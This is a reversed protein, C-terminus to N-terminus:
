KSKPFMQFIAVLWRAFTAQDVTCTQRDMKGLHRALMMMFFLFWRPTSLLPLTSCLVSNALRSVREMSALEIRVAHISVSLRFQGGVVVMALDFRGFAFTLNESTAQPRNLAVREDNERGRGTHPARLALQALHSLWGEPLGTSM